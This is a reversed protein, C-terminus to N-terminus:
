VIARMKNIFDTAAEIMGNVTKARLQGVEKKTGSDLETTNIEKSSHLKLNHGILLKPLNQDYDSISKAMSGLMSDYEGKLKKDFGDTMTDMYVQGM